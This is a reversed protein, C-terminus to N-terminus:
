LFSIEMQFHRGVAADAFAKGISDGKIAADAVSKFAGSLTDSIEQANERVKGQQEALREAASTARAYSEAAADIETRLEPTDEKGARMAASLLDHAVAAKDVAYGYDNVLPNLAAQAAYAANLAATRERVQEVERAYDDVKEASAGPKKKEEAPVAYDNISVKNAVTPTAPLRSTKPSRGTGEFAGDIRRQINDEALSSGVERGNLIDQNLKGFKDIIGPIGGLIRKFEAAKDVGEALWGVFSGLESDSANVVVNGFQEITKALDDLTKGFGKSAGTAADIKGATDVLVNQLQVFRQSTTLAGGAVKEELTSAGAEFARFFAESSIKGDIMLKRLEAVSGNAEKLGAAVTQAITPAGELISNFEEARVVGGGLAQSLQLLAGSAQEASTGGVRLALAIKDTFGVLEQQSVGLEKQTLALRSYLTTLSEIPAANRQASAYLADYVQKLNQGALGAVKLSNQIRTAADTLDRAAKLSLGAAFAGALRTAMTGAAGEVRKAMSQASTEIRRFNRDANRTANAINKEFDAVRAELLISLREYDTAM